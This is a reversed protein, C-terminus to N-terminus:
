IEDAVDRAVDQGSLHAGAVTSWLSRHCAEGAFFIRDGISQRLTGRMRYAGPEASAYSGLTWPNQGWSTATGKVFSSDIDSGLMNRLTSLAYDVRAEIPQRELEDAWSGGVDCYAIGHGGANSLVGFGKGDDGIKFMLYGDKGMDFIDHSFQLAIHDYTGMSIASFSEVKDAPLAPVFDIDGAALVGTSVTVVVAKAQITGKTTEVSVGDGSWDVKTAKTDLSVPIGQAWHALLAGFGEECFWDDGDPTNWWDTTSFGDLDKAMAWPGIGFGATAAWPGTVRETAKAVSIDQGRDAATGIADYMSDWTRWLANQDSESVETSGDFVRYEDRAEYITFRNDRGYRNFPNSSDNHLWHAGVDYPVGFTSTETYARGGIRGSGEILAVSHGAGMLSRTAALGAAGAGIVVVDPNTPVQAFLATPAVLTAGLGALLARRNFHLDHSTRTM